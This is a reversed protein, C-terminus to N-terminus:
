FAGKASVYTVDLVIRTSSYEDENILVVEEQGIMKTQLAGIPPAAYVYDKIKDVMEEIADGPMLLILSVEVGWRVHTADEVLTEETAAIVGIYPALDRARSPPLLDRTVRRIGDIAALGAVLADLMTKRTNAL